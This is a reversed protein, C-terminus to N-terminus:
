GSRPRRKQRSGSYRDMLPDGYALRAAYQNHFACLLRLNEVTPPGGLAKPHVHDLQVRRTSGCIGGSQVPWQCKGEDRAIVARKVEAPV